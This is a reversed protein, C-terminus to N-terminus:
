ARRAAGVLIGVGLSVVAAVGAIKLWPIKVAEAARAAFGAAIQSDVRASIAAQITEITL